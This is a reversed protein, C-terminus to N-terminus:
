RNSRSVLPVITGTATTVETPADTSRECVCVCVCAHARPRVISMIRFVIAVTHTRKVWECAYLIIITCWLENVSKKIIKKKTYMYIIIVIADLTCARVCLCM